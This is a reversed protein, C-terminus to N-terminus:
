LGPKPCAAVNSKTRRLGRTISCTFTSKGLASYPLAQKRRVPLEWSSPAPVLNFKVQRTDKHTMAVTTEHSGEEM